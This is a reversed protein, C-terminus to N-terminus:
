AGCVHHGAISVMTYFNGEWNNSNANGPNQFDFAQQYCVSGLGSGCSRMACSMITDSCKDKTKKDFTDAMQKIKERLTTNMRSAYINSYVNDREDEDILKSATPVEGENATMFCYKNGGITDACASRIYRSVLATTIAFVWNINRWFTVKSPRNLIGHHLKQHM